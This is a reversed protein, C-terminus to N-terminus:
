SPRVQGKPAFASPYDLSWGHIRNMRDRKRAACLRNLLDALAQDKARVGTFEESARELMLTLKVQEISFEPM